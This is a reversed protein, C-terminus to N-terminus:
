SVHKRKEWINCAHRQSKGLGTSRRLVHRQVAVKRVYRAIILEHQGHGREVDDIPAGM